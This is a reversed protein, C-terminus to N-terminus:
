TREKLYRVVEEAEFPTLYNDQDDERYDKDSQGIVTFEEELAKIPDNVGTIALFQELYAEVYERQELQVFQHVLRLCLFSLLQKGRSSTGFFHSHNVHLWKNLVAMKNHPVKMTKDAVLAYFLEDHVADEITPSCGSSVHKLLQYPNRHLVLLAHEVRGIGKLSDYKKKKKTKKKMKDLEEHSVLMTTDDDSGDDDDGDGEEEEEGADEDTVTKRMHVGKRQNCRIRYPKLQAVDVYRVAEMARKADEVLYVDVVRNNVGCSQYLQQKKSKKAINGDCDFADVGVCSNFFLSKDEGQGDHHVKEDDDNVGQDDEGKGLLMQDSLYNRRSELFSRLLLKESSHVGGGPFESTRVDTLLLRIIRESTEILMDKRMSFCHDSVLSGQSQIVYINTSILKDPHQHMMTALPTLDNFYEDSRLKIVFRNEVWLCIYLLLFLFLFLFLFSLFLFLFFSSYVFLLCCFLHGGKILLLVFVFDFDFILILILM